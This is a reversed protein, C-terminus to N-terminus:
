KKGKKKQVKQPSSGPVMGGNDVSMSTQFQGLPTGGGPIQPDLAGPIIASSGTVGMFQSSTLGRQMAEQGLRMGEMPEQGNGPPQQQMGFPIAGNQGQGLPMNQPLGSNQVKQPNVMGTGMQAYQQRYDGYISDSQIPPNLIDTVNMPNNNEPGGPMTTMNKSVKFRNPDLMMANEEKKNM